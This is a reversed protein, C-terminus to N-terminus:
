PLGCSRRGRERRQLQAPALSVATGAGRRGQLAAPRCGVRAPRRQATARGRSQRRTTPLSPARPHPCRMARLRAIRDGARGIGRTWAGDSAMGVGTGIVRDAPRAASPPLLPRAARSLAPPRQREGFSPQAEGVAWRAVSEKKAILNSNKNFPPARSARAGPLAPRPSPRGKGRLLFARRWGGPASGWSAARPPIAGWGPRCLMTDGLGTGGLLRWGGRGPGKGM